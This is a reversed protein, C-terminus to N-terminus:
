WAEFRRSSPLQPLIGWVAVTERGGVFGDAGREWVDGFEQRIGERREAMPYPSVIFERTRSVDIYLSRLGVAGVACGLCGATRGSPFDKTGGLGAGPAGSCRPRASEPRGSTKQQSRRVFGLSFHTGSRLFASVLMRLPERRM